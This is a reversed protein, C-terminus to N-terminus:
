LQSKNTKNSPANNIANKIVMHTDFADFDARTFLGKGISFSYDKDCPFCLSNGEVIHSLLCM